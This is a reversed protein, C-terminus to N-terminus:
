ANLTGAVRIADVAITNRLTATGTLGVNLGHAFVAANDAITANTLTAVGAVFLGGGSYSSENGTIAVNAADAVGSKDVYLGAGQVAAENGTIAVNALTAKGNVFLGAGYNASNASVVGGDVTVNGTKDVYLGGGFNAVNGTVVCNELVATKSVRVGGGYGDISGGTITLSVFKVPADLTGASAHFVRSQGQADITVGDGGDITIAKVIKLEAGDLTVIAGSLTEAFSVVDGADAHSIAERLSTFGDTPDVVDVTTTVVTWSEEVATFEFADSTASRGYENVAVVDYSYAAGVELRGSTWTAADVTQTELTAGDADRLTVVYALAGDVANWSLVATLTEPSLKQATLGTPVTPVDGVTIEVAESAAAGYENVAVVRYVYTAGFGLVDTTWETADTALNAVTTWEGDAALLEVVYGTEVVANDNWTLTATPTSSANVGGNLGTPAFPIQSEYAGLDVTGNFRPAGALDTAITADLYADDGKNLAQSDAALAYSGEAFLPLTADYAYNVVDTADANTWGDFNSLTNYANAVGPSVVDFAITNAFTATGAAAVVAGAGTSAVNDAITANTLNATGVVYLGGGFEANNGVLLSNEVDVPGAVRVAGGNQTAVNDSLTANRLTASGANAVNIGGGLNAGNNSITADVVTAQGGV